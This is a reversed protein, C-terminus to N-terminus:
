AQTDIHPTSGKAVVVTAARLLRGNLTYGKQLVDIVSNPEAHPAEVTAVAEHLEPSFPEGIPNIVDIQFKKLVDLFSKLTLDVGEALPKVVESAKDCAALARELNDVVPLLAGSFKELAYKHANEVDREARRRLNQMDAQARLAQDKFLAAQAQAEELQQLLEVPAGQEQVPAEAAAADTEEVPNVNTTESVHFSRIKEENL